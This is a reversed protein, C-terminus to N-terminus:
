QLLIEVPCHDSGMVDPLIRSDQVHPVFAADVCHYDLRWGVNRERAGARYSWWTYQDPKCPNFHRFTDVFGAAVWTDMWAREEPLYGASGENEKPRALDIPKHAINYDGCLVIHTGNKLLKKCKKLMTACFDLKYPLRVGAEQSNPFYANILAFPPLPPDDYFAIIVRGETDFEDAGLYAIDHPEKKSFIATGSYGRKKQAQGTHNIYPVTM